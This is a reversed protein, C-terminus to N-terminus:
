TSHHHTHVAQIMEQQWDYKHATSDKPQMLFDSSTKISAQIMEQQWDYKHATSDKPQM